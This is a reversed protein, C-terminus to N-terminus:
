YENLGPIYAWKQCIFNDNGQHFSFQSTKYRYLEVLEINVTIRKFLLTYSSRTPYYITEWQFSLLSTKMPYNWLILKWQIISRKWQSLTYSRKRTPYYITKMPYYITKMPYYITKMPYYITKMPYYITKMPYYITKMWNRRNVVSLFYPPRTRFLLFPSRIIINNLTRWCRGGHWDRSFHETNLTHLM